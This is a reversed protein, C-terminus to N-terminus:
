LQIVTYVHQSPLTHVGPNIDVHRSWLCHTCHNTYGDGEELHGCHECAFDEAHRQFTREEM